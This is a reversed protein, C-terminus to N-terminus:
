LRTRERDREKEFEEIRAREEREIEELEDIRAREERELSELEAIRAADWAQQSRVLELSRLLGEADSTEAAAIAEEKQREEDAIASAVISAQYPVVILAVVISVSVVAKGAPTIPTFDGFGVTSLAIISFYFAGFFDAFEPNSPHEAEYVLGATVFLLTFVVGFTRVIQFQFPRVGEMLADAGEAGLFVRAIDKFAKPRFFRYVRLVRLLKLFNLEVGALEPVWPRLIFPLVSVLDAVMVPTLAYDLRFGRSWWRAVYDLFFLVNAGDLLSHLLRQTRESFGPTALFMFITCSFGVLFANLLEATSSRQLRDIKAGLPLVTFGREQALQAYAERWAKDSWAQDPDPGRRDEPWARQLPVKAAHRTTKGLPEVSAQDAGREALFGVCTSALAEALGKERGLGRSELCSVGVGSAAFEQRLGDALARVFAMSGTFACAGAVGPSAGSPAGVLLIRGRGAACMDAGFLRCLAATAGVNLALMRDLNDLSQNLFPGTYAFQDSAVFLLALDYGREMVIRHLMEAGVTPDALDVTSAVVRANPGAINSLEVALDQLDIDNERESLIVGFGARVCIQALARGLGSTAGTVLAWSKAPDPLPALVSQVDGM